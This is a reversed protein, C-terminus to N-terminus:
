PMALRKSACRTAIARACPMARNSAYTSGPFLAISATNVRLPSGAICFGSSPVTCTVSASVYISRPGSVFNSKKGQKRFLAERPSDTSFPM